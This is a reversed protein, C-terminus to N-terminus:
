AARSGLCLKLKGRGAPRLRQVQKYFTKDLASSLSERRRIGACRSIQCFRYMFRPKVLNKAKEYGLIRKKIIIRRKLSLIRYQAILM